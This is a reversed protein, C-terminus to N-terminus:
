GEIRELHEYDDFAPQNKPHPRALFPVQPDLVDALLAHLEREVDVSLTQLDIEMVNKEPGNSAFSLRYYIAEGPKHNDGLEAFASNKVMLAELLLQPALLKEVESKTPVSGTKYDAVNVINCGRMLELRDAKGKITFQQGNVTLKLEAPTETIIKEFSRIADRETRIFWPALQEMQKLWIDEAAGKAKMEAHVESAVQKFSAETLKAPDLAHHKTFRQMVDHVFSGYERADLERELDDLPRLKLIHKAYIAYPNKLITEIDTISLTNMRADAPPTPRPRSAPAAPTLNGSDLKEILPHYANYPEMKKEGTIACYFTRIRSVFPSEVTPEGNRYASLSIFVEARHLFSTFDHAALAMADEAYPMEMERFMQRSFWPSFKGSPWSNLTLDGLIVCDFHQLRAEIPSLIVASETVRHQPWVKRRTLVTRVCEAFIALSIGQGVAAAAMGNLLEELAQWRENANIDINPQLLSLMDFVASILAPASEKLNARINNLSSILPELGEPMVQQQSFQQLHRINHRRATLELTAAGEHGAMKLASILKTIGMDSSICDAVELLLRGEPTNDLTTGSSDDIDIGFRRLCVRVEAALYRNNTILAVTKGQALKHHMIAGALKAEYIGSEARILKLFSIGQGTIGLKRWGAIGSAGKMMASVVASRNSPQGLMTVDARTAGLFGLLRHIHRQHNIENHEDNLQQWEANSIDMDIYPLIVCGQPLQQIQKILRRTAPVSGTSGAIFVQGAHNQLHQAYLNLLASTRSAPSTYGLEALAKPYSTFINRIFDLSIQRHQALEAPLIAELREIGIEQREMDDMLQSLSDSLKLAAELSIGEKGANEMIMRALMFMRKESPIAPLPLQIDNGRLAAGIELEGEDVGGLSIINPMVLAHNPSLEVFHAKLRFVSRRNPLIITASALAQAQNNHRALIFAALERLYDGQPHVAFINKQNSTM